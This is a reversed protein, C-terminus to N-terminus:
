FIYTDFVIKIKQAFIGLAKNVEPTNGGGLPKPIPPSKTFGEREGLGWNEGFKGV